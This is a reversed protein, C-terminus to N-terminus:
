DPRVSLTLSSQADESSQGPCTFGRETVYRWEPPAARGHPTRWIRRVSASPSADWLVDHAHLSAAQSEQGPSLHTTISCRVDLQDFGQQAGYYRARNLERLDSVVLVDGPRWQHGLWRLAQELASSNNPTTRM